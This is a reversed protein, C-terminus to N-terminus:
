LYNLFGCRQAENLGSTQRASFGNNVSPQRVHATAAAARGLWYNPGRACPGEPVDFRQSTRNREGPRGEKEMYRQVM